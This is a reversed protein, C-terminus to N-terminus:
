LQEAQDKIEKEIAKLTRNKYAEYADLLFKLSSHPKLAYEQRAEEIITEVDECSLKQLYKNVIDDSKRMNLANQLYERKNKAHINDLIQLYAENIMDKDVMANYDAYGCLKAYDELKDDILASFKQASTEQLNPDDKELQEFMEDFIAYVDKENSM